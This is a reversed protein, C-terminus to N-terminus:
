VTVDLFAPLTPPAHAAAEGPVQGDTDDRLLSLLGGPWFFQAPHLLAQRELRRVLDKLTVAPSRYADSPVTLPPEITTTFIGASDRFTVTPLLPAGTAAALKIPGTALSLAGTSERGITISV